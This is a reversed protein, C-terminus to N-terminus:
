HIIIKYNNLLLDSILFHRCVMKVAMERMLDMPVTQRTIVGIGGRCALVWTVSVVTAPQLM